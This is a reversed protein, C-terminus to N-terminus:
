IALPPRFPHIKSLFHTFLIVLFFSLVLCKYWPPSRRVIHNNLATKFWALQCIIYITLNHCYCFTEKIDYNQEVIRTAQAEALFSLDFSVKNLSSVTM